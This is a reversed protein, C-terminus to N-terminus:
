SRIEPRDTVSKSAIRADRDWKLLIRFYDVLRQFEEETMQITRGDEMKFERIESKNTQHSPSSQDKQNM